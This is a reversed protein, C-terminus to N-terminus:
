TKRIHPLLAFDWSCLFMYMLLVEEFNFGERWFVSNLSHFSWGFVPFFIQVDYIQCFAQIWFVSFKGLPLLFGGSVESFLHASSKLLSKVLFICIALLWMFLREVDKSMRFIYIFVVILCWSVETLIVLILFISCELCPCPQPLYFEWVSSSLIVLTLM